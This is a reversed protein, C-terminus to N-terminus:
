PDGSLIHECIDDVHLAVSDILPVPANRLPLLLPLETCALVVAEAGRGALTDVARRLLADGVARDDDATLISQILRDMEAQENAELVLVQRGMKGLHDHVFLSSCTVHTGLVGIRRWGGQDLMRAAAALVHPVAAGSAARVAEHWRHATVATLAIVKCGSQALGRAADALIGGIGDWDGTGVRDLLDAYDLNWIQGSFSHHPGCSHEVARNLREYYLATSRWSMGGVLGLRLRQRGGPKAM